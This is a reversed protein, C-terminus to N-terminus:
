AGAPWTTVALRALRTQRQEIEGVGWTAESGVESTLLLASRKLVKAKEAFSKNGIAVNVRSQLLALNGIRKYYASAIESDLKWGPGPNQPLIHELNVEDEDDNAIQEPDAEGKAMRELARLYYRALGANSVRTTAFAAEFQADNPVIEDMATSLQKATKILGTGIEAARLGYNVDLLGGRGGTILFRVSWNVCLRFALRAEPVSFKQAIAFLMPRIQGIGLQQLTAIHKRTGSGYANWKEHHPNLLAVYHVSNDALNEAFTVAQQRNRIEEKIKAFLERERTPGHLTIYFHRLYTVIIEDSAVTELAGVMAAWRSQVEEMRDGARGLLYNKLLDSQALPLGRDNLTEFMRFADYQDPVTVVIVRASERVFDVWDALRIAQKEPKFGAVILAVRKQALDRATLIRYHSPKSPQIERDSSGPRSLIAKRYYENDAVNLRLRPTTETSRFETKLLYTEELSKARTEDGGELLFDRVAALFISVTALRQQGDAVEPPDGQAMVITGLFYEQEESSEADQFDQFLETIHEEEWAYERQNLPVALRSDTLMQGIGKHDFQISAKQPM